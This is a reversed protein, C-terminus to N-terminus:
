PFLELETLPWYILWVRRTTNKMPIPGIARSDRSVARNDGLVFIKDAPIETTPYDPGGFNTVWPEFLMEGNIYTHGGRVEITEGALAVVRKILGAEQNPMEVVVIDGRHPDRFRYSIKETMVRYGVYLNPEMSSGQEIEVAEAVYVNIFLAMLLAPIVVTALEWVLKVLFNIGTSIRMNIGTPELNNMIM